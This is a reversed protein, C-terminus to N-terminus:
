GFKTRRGTYRRVMVFSRHRAQDKNTKREHEASSRLLSALEQDTQTRTRDSYADAEARSRRAYAEVDMIPRYKALERELAARATVSSHLEQGLSQGQQQLWFAYGAVLALLLCLFVVM